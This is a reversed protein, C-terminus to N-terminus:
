GCRSCRPYTTPGSGPYATRIKSFDHDIGNSNENDASNRAAGARRGPGTTKGFGCGDDYELAAGINREGVATQGVVNATDDFVALTQQHLCRFAQIGAEIQIHPDIALDEGNISRGFGDLNPIHFRATLAGFGVIDQYQARAGFGNSRGKRTDVIRADM